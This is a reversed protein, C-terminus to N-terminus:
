YAIAYTLLILMAALATMGVYLSCIEWFRARGAREQERVRLEIQERTIWQGEYPFQGLASRERAARRLRARVERGSLGRTDGGTTM